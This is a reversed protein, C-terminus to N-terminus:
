SSTGLGFIGIGLLLLPPLLKLRKAKGQYLEHRQLLDEITATFVADMKRYYNPHQLYSDIDTKIM